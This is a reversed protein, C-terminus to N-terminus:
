RRRGPRRGPRAPAPIRTGPHGTFPRGAGSWNRRRRHWRPRASRQPPVPRLPSPRRHLRRGPHRSRAPHRRRSASTSSYGSPHGSGSAASRAVRASAPWSGAAVPLGRPLASPQRPGPGTRAGLRDRGGAGAGHRGSQGRAPRQATGEQNAKHDDRQERQRRDHEAARREGAQGAGTVPHHVLDVGRREAGRLQPDGVEVLLGPDTAVREARAGGEQGRVGLSEGQLPLLDAGQAAQEGARGAADASRAWTVARAPMQRASVRLRGILCTRVVPFGTVPAVVLWPFASNSARRAASLPRWVSRVLSRLCATAPSFPEAVVSLAILRPAPIESSTM